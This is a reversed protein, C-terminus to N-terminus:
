RRDNTARREGALESALEKFADKVADVAQDKSISGEDGSYYSGWVRIKRSAAPVLRAAVELQRESIRDEMSAIVNASVVGLTAKTVRTLQADDAPLSVFQIHGDRLLAHALNHAMDKQVYELFGPEREYQTTVTAEYKLLAVNEEKTKPACEPCPFSRSTEEMITPVANPDFSASVSHYLPLRITKQGQCVPCRDNKMEERRDPAAFM